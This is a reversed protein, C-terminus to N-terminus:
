TTCENGGTIVARLSEDHALWARRVRPSVDREVLVQDLIRLRRDFQGGFIGSSAHAARLPRGQYVVPGGLHQAAFQYELERLRTVDVKRFFFGIMTDGVVRDVFCNVLERLPGEGGLEEFDTAV